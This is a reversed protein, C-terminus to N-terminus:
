REYRSEHWREAAAECAPCEDPPPDDVPRHRFGHPKTELYRYGVHGHECVYADAVHAHSNATAFVAQKVNDTFWGTLTATRAPRDKPVLLHVTHEVWEYDDANPKEPPFVDEAHPTENEFFVGLDWESLNRLQRRAVEESYGGGIMVEIIREFLEQREDAM